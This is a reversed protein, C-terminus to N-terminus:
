KDPGTINFQQYRLTLKRPGSFKSQSILQIPYIEIKLYGSQSCTLLSFVMFQKDACIKSIKFVLGLMDQSDILKFYM